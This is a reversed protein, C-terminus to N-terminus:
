SDGQVQSATSGPEWRPLGIEECLMRPLPDQLPTVFVEVVVGTKAQFLHGGLTRFDPGGLM